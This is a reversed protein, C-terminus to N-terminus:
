ESGKNTTDITFDFEASEKKYPLFIAEINPNNISHFKDFLEVYHIFNKLAKVSDSLNNGYIYDSNFSKVVYMNDIARSFMVNIYNKGIESNLITISKHFTKDSKRESFGMSIIINNREAGQVDAVTRVFLSIDEGDDTVRGLENSILKSPHDKILSEIYNKQEMSFTIVGISDNYNPTNHRPDNVIKEIIKIVEAAEQVNIGDKYEGNVNVCKLGTSTPTPSDAVNISNNYFAVNSFQILDKTKCRYHYNLMTVRSKKQLYDLLSTCGDILNNEFDDSVELSAMSKALEKQKEINSFYSPPPLQKLDGVCCFQQGRYLIPLAKELTIQSSEDFIIQDFIGKECRVINPVLTPSCIIVPFLVTLIRAYKRLVEQVDQVMEIGNIYSYLENFETYYSKDSYIISFITEAFNKECENIDEQLKGKLIENINTHYDEEDVKLTNSNINAFEMM